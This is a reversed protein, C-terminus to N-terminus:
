EYFCNDTFIGSGTTDAFSSGDPAYCDYESYAGINETTGNVVGTSPCAECVLTSDNLGSVPYYGINCAYEDEADWSYVECYFQDEDVDSSNILLAPRSVRNNGADSWDENDNVPNKSNFYDWLSCETCGGGATRICAYMYEGDDGLYCGNDAFDGDYFEEPCDDYQSVGGGVHEQLEIPGCKHVYYEGYEDSNNRLFCPTGPEDGVQAKLTVWAGADFFPMSILAVVVGLGVIPNPM